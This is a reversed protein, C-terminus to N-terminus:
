PSEEADQASESERTSRTRWDELIQLATDKAAEGVEKLNESTQEALEETEMQDLVDVGREVIKEGVPAAARVIAETRRDMNEAVTTLRDLARLAMMSAIALVVAIVMLLIVLLRGHWVLERLHRPSPQGEPM